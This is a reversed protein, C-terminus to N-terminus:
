AHPFEKAQASLRAARRLQKIFDSLNATEIGIRRGECNIWVESSDTYYGISIPGTYSEGTDLAQWLLATCVEQTTAFETIEVM